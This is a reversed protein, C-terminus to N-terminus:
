SVAAMKTLVDRFHSLFVSVSLISSIESERRPLYSSSLTTPHISAGQPTGEHQLRYASLRQDTEVLSCVAVDWFAAM